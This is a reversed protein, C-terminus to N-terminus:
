GQSPPTVNESRGGLEYGDMYIRPSAARNRREVFKEAIKEAVLRVRVQPWGGELQDHPTM